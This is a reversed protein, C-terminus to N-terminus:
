ESLDDVLCLSRFSLSLRNESSDCWFRESIFPFINRGNGFRLHLFSSIFLRLFSNIAFYAFPKPNDAQHRKSSKKDVEWKFLVIYSFQQLIANKKLSLRYADPTTKYGESGCSLRSVNFSIPGTYLSTPFLLQQKSKRTTRTEM